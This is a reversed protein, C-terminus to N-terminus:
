KLNRSLNTNFILDENEYINGVCELTDEYDPFNRIHKIAYKHEYLFKSLPEGNIYFGACNNDWEIVYYKYIDNPFRCGMIDWEYLEVGNKDKLGSSQMLPYDYLAGGLGVRPRNSFEILTVPRMVKDKEDWARFKIERM